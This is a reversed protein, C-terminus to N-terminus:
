FGNTSLKSLAQRVWKDSPDLRFAVQYAAIAKEILGADNYIDGLIRYPWKRSKDDAWLTLAQKIEQEALSVKGYRQYLAAGLRLHAWHHEPNLLVARQYERISALPNLDQQDYITGRSAHADAAEWDNNFSDLVIATDYAALARNLKPPALHRQYIKGIQYYLSSRGIDAFTEAEVAQEYARLAQEWEELGEHIVGIHYWPDGLNPEMRAAREYWLLAKEYRKAAQAMDGRQIFEEVMGEANQWVAVAQDERGQMALVFGLGRRASTNAPNWLIAQRLSHETRYLTPRAVTHSCASLYRTFTLLGVSTLGSSVVASGHLVLLLVSVGLLVLRIHRYIRKNTMLM